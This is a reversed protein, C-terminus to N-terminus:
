CFHRYVRKREADAFEGVTIKVGKGMFGGGVGGTNKLNVRTKIEKSLELTHNGYRSFDGLALYPANPHRPSGTGVGISAHRAHLNM